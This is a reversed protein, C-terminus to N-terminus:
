SFHSCLVVARARRTGLMARVPVACSLVGIVVFIEELSADKTLPMNASSVFAAAAGAAEVEVPAPPAVGNTNGPVVSPMKGVPRMMVLM